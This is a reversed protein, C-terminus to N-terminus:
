SRNTMGILNELPKKKISFYFTWIRTASQFICPQPTPLLLRHFQLRSDSKSIQQLLLRTTTPCKQHLPTSTPNQFKSSDSDPQLQVNKISLLRPQIKFNEPTPTPNYDSRKSPSFNSNSKSIQQLRLRITTPCKQHLPTPIPNQFNSSDSDPQLQVNKISLVVELVWTITGM